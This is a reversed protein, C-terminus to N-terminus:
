PRTVWLMSWISPPTDVRLAINQIPAAGVTGPILSLNELGGYAQDISWLVLDHWNEGASIEVLDYKEEQVVVEKGTISMLLIDLNTKENIFLM